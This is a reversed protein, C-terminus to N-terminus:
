RETGEAASRAERRDDIVDQVVDKDVRSQGRAAAIFLANAAILNALRPVGGSEEHIVRAARSTFLGGSAGAARARRDLYTEVEEPSMGGLHYRVVVRQALQPLREVHHTLEPQGLLVLGAGPGEDPNTLLRLEELAAANLRQAEDVLLVVLRGDAASAEMRERLLGSLRAASGGAEPGGAAVQLAALLAAPTRPPNAVPVVTFGEGDLFRRVTHALLTKGSGIEGTVLVIGGIESLGFLVRALAERHDHRDVLFRLDPALGFPQSDLGLAELYDGGAAPPSPTSDATAM